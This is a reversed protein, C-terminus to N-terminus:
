KSKAGFRSERKLQVNICCDNLSRGNLKLIIEKSFDYDNWKYSCWIRQSIDKEKKSRLSIKAYLGEGDETGGGQFSLEKHNKYLIYFNWSVLINCKYFIFSVNEEIPSYKLAINMEVRRSSYDEQSSSLLCIKEDQSFINM